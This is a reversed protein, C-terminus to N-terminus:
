ASVPNSANDLAAIVDRMRSGLSGKVLLLDGPRLANLLLPALSRSDPAYAGRLAEPLAEYLARMHEGCCFAIANAAIVADALSRHEADAFAGLERIDGLAAIRRKAPLLALTELTSRISTTSANYSEDLLQVGNLVARMQGRGAGPVFDALAHSAKSVNEGLAAVAGLALAANRALHRGPANLHVSIDGVGPLTLVFDSGDATCVLGTLRIESNTSLGSHWLKAHAPLAARFLDQGIADDPVIATGNETLAGFLTAKERAIEELSGMHGLHATGITTIIAVDPRVQAALPAIEGVHNMGVESICFRADRPLRALTLPVGWHNNYSAVAAHTPGLASLATRLMDKTTTKGVSGTVAIVKGDFRDRAYRGLAELGSMTDAVILLRPDTSGQTDHVMVCAAGAELAQAIHAHGDSTEGKLAIFLDGLKLTRTDISIGTVSVDAALTGQTADRLEQSTWLATM